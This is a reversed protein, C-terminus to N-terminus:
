DVMVVVEEYRSTGREASNALHKINKAEHEMNNHKM